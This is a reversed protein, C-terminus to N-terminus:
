NKIKGSPDYGTLFTKVGPDIFIMNAQNDCKIIKNTQICLYYKNLPTKILRTDYSLKDPIIETTKLNSPKFISSFFNNKKNWHKKLVSISVNKTFEDKRSKFKIDFYEGKAKNSEINKLLDRLSEDRLDYHSENYNIENIVATRLSKLTTLKNNKVQELCKNYIWRQLGFWKKLISKQDQTLYLQIHKVSNIDSKVKKVIQKVNKLPKKKIKKGKNELIHQEKDMINPLLSQLSQLYTMQSNELCTTSTMVQASYWSNLMLKKSSGNLLNLDLDVCDIKTPSWVVVEQVNGSYVQELLSNFGPRKWNLGSGIDKVIKADPYANKLLTIQRELDEKQHNSSVRAYCIRHKHTDIIDEKIGFIKKIDNINYIRKGPRNTTGTPRLTRIKGADSLRVM